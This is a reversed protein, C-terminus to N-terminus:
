YEALFTADVFTQAGNWGDINETLDEPKNPAILDLDLTSLELAYYIIHSELGRLTNQKCKVAM